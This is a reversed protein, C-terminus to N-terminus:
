RLLHCWRRGEQESFVGPTVGSVGKRVGWRQEMLM